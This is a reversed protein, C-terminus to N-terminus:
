RAAYRVRKLPEKSALLRALYGIAAKSKSLEVVRPLGRWANLVLLFKAFGLIGGADKNGRRRITKSLAHFARHPFPTAM